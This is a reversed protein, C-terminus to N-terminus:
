IGAKRAEDHLTALSALLTLQQLPNDVNHCSFQYGSKESFFNQDTQDPHIGCADGPCDIILRGDNLNIRFQYDYFHDVGNISRTDMIEFVKITAKKLSILLNKPNKITRMWSILGISFQGSLSGGHMERDTITSVTILQSKGSGSEKESIQLYAFILTFTASLAYAEEWKYYFPFGDGECFLCKEDEFLDKKGTGKCYGCSKDDKKRIVPLHAKFNLFGDKVGDNKFSKEFGFDSGYFDASFKEFKFNKKLSQVIPAREFDVPNDKIYEEWIKLVISNGKGEYSLEYWCSMDRRTILEM